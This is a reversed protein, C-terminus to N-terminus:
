CTVGGDEGGSLESVKNFALTDGSLFRLLLSPWQSLKVTCPTLFNHLIKGLQCRPQM